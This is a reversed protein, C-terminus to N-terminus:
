KRNHKLYPKIGVINFLDLFSKKYIFLIFLLAIVDIVYVYWTKIFVNSVAVVILIALAILIKKYPFKYWCWRALFLTALFYIVNSVATTLAAGIAGLAPTLIINLILNILLVLTSAFTILQGKKAFIIGIIYTEAITYLIPYFVLLPFIYQAERYSSNLILFIVSKFMICLICVVSLVATVIEMIRFYATNEKGESYWRMSLPTWFSIFCGRIIAILGTIRLAVGYLGLDLATSFRKICIRDASNMFLAILENPALPLGFSAMEKIIRFNINGRRIKKKGTHNILIVIVDFINQGLLAGYMASYFSKEYCIFIIITLLTTLVKAVVNLSSYLLGREQMRIRLLYFRELVLLPLSLALLLTPLIVENSNYLKASISGANIFIISGCALSVCIPVLITNSLIYEKDKEDHFYRAYAQDFGLYIIAQIISQMMQFYNVNSYEEPSIFYSIIPTNLFGIASAMIPGLFFFLINNRQNNGKNGM